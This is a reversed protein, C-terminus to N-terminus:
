SRRGHVVRKFPIVNRLRGSNAEIKEPIDLDEGLPTDGELQVPTQSRAGAELNKRGSASLIGTLEEVVANSAQLRAKIKM